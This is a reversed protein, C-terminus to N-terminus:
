LWGKAEYKKKKLELLSQMLDNGRKTERMLAKFEEARTDRNVTRNSKIASKTQRATPPTPSPIQPSTSPGPQQIPRERPQTSQNSSGALSSPGAPSLLPRRLETFIDPSRQGSSIDDGDESASTTRWDDFLRQRDEAPAPPQLIYRLPALAILRSRHTMINKKNM